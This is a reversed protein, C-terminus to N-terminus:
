ILLLFHFLLLLNVEPAEEIAKEFRELSDVNPFNTMFIDPVLVPEFAKEKLQPYVNRTLKEAIQFLNDTDDPIGLKALTDQLRKLLNRQFDPKQQLLEKFSKAGPQQTLKLKGLAKQFRGIPPLIRHNNDPMIKM